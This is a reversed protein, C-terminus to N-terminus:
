SSNSDTTDSMKFAAFSQPENYYHLLTNSCHAASNIPIHFNLIIKSVKGYHQQDRVGVCNAWTRLCSPSSVPSGCDECIDM